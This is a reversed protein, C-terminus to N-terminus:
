KPALTKYEIETAGQITFCIGIKTFFVNLGSKSPVTILLASSLSPATTLPKEDTDSTESIVTVPLPITPTGPIAIRTNLARLSAPIFTKNIVCLEESCVM